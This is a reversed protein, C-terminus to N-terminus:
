PTKESDEPALKGYAELLKVHAQPPIEKLAQRAVSSEKRLQDSLARTDAERGETTETREPLALIKVDNGQVVHATVLKAVQEVKKQVATGDIKKDAKKAADHQKQVEARVADGINDLMLGERGEEQSILKKNGHYSDIIPKIMKKYSLYAAFVKFGVKFLEAFNIAVDLNLNVILDISGNQVEVLAVDKPPESKLLQHYVPLIRNWWAITKSFHELSSITERHNFIIAITALDKDSIESTDVRVYPSIFAEIKTIENANQDIQVQLETLKTSLRGFFEQQPIESNAILEQLDQDHRYETFPRVEPSPLLAALAHPLDGSYLRELFTLLKGAIERLGLINNQSAPLSAIYDELDRKFGSDVIERAFLDAHQKLTEINM